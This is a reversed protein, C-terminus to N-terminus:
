LLTCILLKVDNIKSRRNKIYQQRLPVNINFEVYQIKLSLHEPGKFKLFFNNRQKWRCTSQKIIKKEETLHPGVDFVDFRANGSKYFFIDVAFSRKCFFRVFEFTLAAAKDLKRFVSSWWWRLTLRKKEVTMPGPSIVKAWGLHKQNAHWKKFVFLWEVLNFSNCIHRQCANPERCNFILSNSCIM